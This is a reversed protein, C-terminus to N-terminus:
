KCNTMLESLGDIGRALRLGCDCFHNGINLEFKVSAGQSALIEAAERACKEVQALRQNRARAERDGVSLYVCAGPKRVYNRKMFDLWGDFWLSGSVSAAGDFIDAAYLAYLACLGALSYGCVARKEPAIGTQREFEAIERKMWTLYEGAGGGFNEGNRFCKEAKWPSLERNWDAVPMLALTADAKVYEASEYDAIIYFVKDTAGKHLLRINDPMRPASASCM